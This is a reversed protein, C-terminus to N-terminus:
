PHLVTVMNMAFHYTRKRLPLGVPLDRKVFYGRMLRLSFGPFLDVCFSRRESALLTVRSYNLENHSSISRVKGLIDFLIM